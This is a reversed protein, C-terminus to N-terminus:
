CVSSPDILVRPLLSEVLARDGVATGEQMAAAAGCAVARRAAEIAGCGDAVAWVLGALTADGAGIPSRADVPPPHAVVTRGNMGLVLGRAGRTLAALEVGRARLLAVAKRCAPEAALPMGLLASAEEDNPKLGFPRAALGAELAAGSSDLFAKGGRARVLRILQAYIDAPAGPPLSGCFTWIDGPRTLDGVLARMAELHGANVGAGPENIKTYEGTSRDLLTINQRSEEVVEILYVAFGAEILGQRLKRGVAGGVFGVIASDIGLAQLARSVNMGKGALDQRLVQARNLEGLRLRPVCLTRDLSPNLSVTYIM